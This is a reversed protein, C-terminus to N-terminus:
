NKSRYNINIIYASLPGGSFVAVAGGGMSVATGYSNNFGLNIGQFLLSQDKSITIPNSIQTVAAIKSITGLNNVGPSTSVLKDSNDVLYATISSPAPSLASFTRSSVYGLSGDLSNNIISTPGLGTETAGNAGCTTAVPNVGGSNAYTNVRLSWCKTGSSSANTNNRSTNFYATKQVKMTPDIEIYLYNYTGDRPKSVSGVLDLTVNKQINLTSGGSSSFITSCSSLNIPQTSTPASPATPCLAIKYFVVQQIDPQTFCTATETIPSSSSSGTSSCYQGYANSSLFLVALTIIKFFSKKM